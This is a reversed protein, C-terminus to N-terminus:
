QAPGVTRVVLVAGVAEATQLVYVPDFGEQRLQDISRHLLERHERLGSVRFARDGRAAHRAVLVDEPLDFVIAALPCSAARALKVLPLRWEARLNTADVVTLRRRALRKAVLAHILEFADETAEQDTEVDSVMARFADSSVVETPAFHARAFTSKGASSPGVLVVLAFAPVSLRM